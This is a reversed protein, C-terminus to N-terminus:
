VKERSKQLENAIQLNKKTLDEIMKKNFELTEDMESLSNKLEEEQSERDELM